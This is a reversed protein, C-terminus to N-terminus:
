NSEDHQACDMGSEGVDNGSFLKLAQPWQAARSSTEIRIDDFWSPRDDSGQCTKAFLLIAIDKKWVAINSQAAHIELPTMDQAIKQAVFVFM